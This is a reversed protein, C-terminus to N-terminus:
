TVGIGGLSGIDIQFLFDHNVVCLYEEQKVLCMMVRLIM